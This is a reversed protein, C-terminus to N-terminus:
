VESREEEKRWWSDGEKVLLVREESVWESQEEVWLRLYSEKKERGKDRENRRWLREEEKRSRLEEGEGKGESTWESVRKGGVWLWLYSKKKRTRKRKREWGKGCKRRREKMAGSKEKWVSMVEMVNQTECVEKETRVNETIGVMVDVFM